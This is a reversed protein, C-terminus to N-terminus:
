SKAFKDARDKTKFYRVQNKKNKGGFNGSETEWTQGPKYFDPDTPPKEAAKKKSAPKKVAVQKKKAPPKPEAKGGHQQTLQLAEESDTTTKVIKKFIEPDFKGYIKTFIEKKARETIRPNGMLARVQTGSINQGDLQLQMEPAIMVYGKDAYGATSSQPDYPQFYKGTGLRDADKESLAFVATTDPPLQSTLEKPAYPSKVQVVKDEPIGFMQTMVQKKEDFGFPSRTADTVGSSVIYVNDEGFEDVLKRYISYHGAHFPQFRGPFIAIRRSEGTPTTTTQTTVKPEEAPTEKPEDVVKAKGRQFKMMGLIQNVPAFAGTFKYPKGNYIFVLGESPVVREIGLDDLREIQQQLMALQNEDGTDKIKEIADRVEQKLQAAMEPNNAGLTNTVRLLTDAGIRLFIREVPRTAVKQKDKLENAEFQRFAKKKEPDEIDKVGFKKEGMAWRRILGEREQPTWDIGMNDIERNWWAVKYDELTSNDDLDYEEQIRAIEAGYQQLREKNRVTDADNFTIPQPGSIGFTRQKQANVAQLQQDLIKSDEINRGVEEGADDYEITGHFVLVPKGYPIVNKTDPFIIEVNMFKRGDGFMADRQEQPLADVAAQIDDASNGFTKEIDGRGAFMQRLDAAPLANQGRNKVQGKNRAFVVRGDRVSFTINQGDLKETVPGEADLGGVLGRKAMEKLDKFTLSDDEYPHALHGAAGGESLLVWPGNPVNGELLESLYVYEINENKKDRGHDKRVLRAGGNHPGNPHHVDHNKMKTKGYKKVAKKRDRNRAVRDDQTKKLYQRVKEPHRKNYRRMRETSSLAENNIFEDDHEPGLSYPFAFANDVNQPKVEDTKKKMSNIYSRYVAAASTKGAAKARQEMAVAAQIKHAHSRGSNRIKSVSAKADDVTAFKLGHITGKPNEDTYLDSHKKSGAPQGPKRPVRRTEEVGGGDGGGADGGGADGGTDGTGDDGGDTPESPPEEKPQEGTKIVRPYLPYFFGYQKIKKKAKKRKKKAEELTDTNTITLEEVLEPALKAVLFNHQDVYENIALVQEFLKDISM